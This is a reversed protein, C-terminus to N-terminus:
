DFYAYIFYIAFIVLVALQFQKLAHIAKPAFNLYSDIGRFLGPKPLYDRSVQYGLASLNNVTKDFMPHLSGQMWMHVAYAARREHDVVIVWQWVGKSKNYGDVCEALAQLPFGPTQEFQLVTGFAFGRAWTPSYAGAVQKSVDSEIQARSLQMSPEFDVIGRHMNRDKYEWFRM